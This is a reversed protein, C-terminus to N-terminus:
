AGDGGDCKGIALLRYYKIGGVLFFKILLALLKIKM